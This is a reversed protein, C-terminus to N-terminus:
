TLNNEDRPSINRCTKPKGRLSLGLAHRFVNRGGHKQMAKQVQRKGLNILEEVTPWHGMEAIAVKLEKLTNEFTWYNKGKFFDDISYSFDKRIIDIDYSSFIKDLQSEIETYSKEFLNGELSIIKMGLKQYLAEKILRKKDYNRYPQSQWSKSLGWVEIYIDGVKFDFRYPYPRSIFGHIVHPIRRSVLYWDVMLEYSSDLYHGDSSIFTNQRQQDNFPIGLAKYRSSILEKFHEMGGLKSIANTLDFMGLNELSKYLPFHGFEDIYQEIRQIVVEENWRSKLCMNMARRFYRFGGNNHIGCWLDYRKLQVLSSPDPFKGHLECFVKIADIIKAETWKVPRGDIVDFGNDYGLLKRYHLLGGYHGIANHLKRFGYEKLYSRSPFGGLKECIPKLEALIMDENWVKKM